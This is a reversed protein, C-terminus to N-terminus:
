SFCAEDEWDPHEHDTDIDQDDVVAASMLLMVGFCGRCVRQGSIGWRCVQRRLVPYVTSAKIKAKKRQSNSLSNGLSSFRTCYSQYAM